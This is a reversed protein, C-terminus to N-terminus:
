TQGLLFIGAHEPAILDVGWFGLMRYENIMEDKIFEKMLTIQIGIDSTYTMVSAGSNKEPNVTGPTLCIAGKQFFPNINADVTNTFTVAATASPTVIVNQYQKEAESGGQNSVLAPSIEVQNSGLLKTIRFDKLFGQDEKSEHHIANVGGFNLCDGVKVGTDSSLTVVQYRNDFNTQEGTASTSRAKPVHYNVASTQTDMTISSGAAATLRKNYDLKFTKLKSVQGVYAEKYAKSSMEAGLDRTDRSLDFALGNYDESSLHLMRDHGAVGINNLKSDIKAVDNFTGQSSASTVVNTGFNSAVTLCSNNILSNMRRFAGDLERSFQLPDRDDTASLVWTVNEVINARIPVAMQTKGKYQGTASWGSFSTMTYPVTRWRTDNSRAMSVPDAKDIEVTQSIVQQDEFGPTQKKWDVWEQETFDNRENSSM